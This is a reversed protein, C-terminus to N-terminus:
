KKKKKKIALLKCISQSLHSESASWYTLALKEMKLQTKM